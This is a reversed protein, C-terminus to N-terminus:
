ESVEKAAEHTMIIQQIAVITDSIQTKQNLTGDSRTEISSLIQEIGNKTNRTLQLQIRGDPAFTVFGNVVDSNSCLALFRLAPKDSLKYVCFNVSNQSEDKADDSITGYCFKAIPIWDLSWRHSRNLTDSRGTWSKEFLPELGKFAMGIEKGLSPIEQQNSTAKIRRHDFSVLEFLKGSTDKELLTEVYHDSNEIAWRTQMNRRGTSQVLTSETVASKGDFEITGLNVGSNYPSIGLFRIKKEQPHWYYVVLERWPDGMASEGETWREISNRGPGWKWKHVMKRGTAATVEWSDSTFIEFHHLPSQEDGQPETSTSFTGVIPDIPFDCGAIQGFGGFAALVFFFAIRSIIIRRLNLNTKIM